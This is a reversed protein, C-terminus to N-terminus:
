AVGAIFRQARLLFFARRFHRQAVSDRHQKGSM